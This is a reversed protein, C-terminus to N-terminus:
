HGDDAERLAERAVAQAENSLDCGKAIEELTARTWSITLLLREIECYPCEGGETRSHEDEREQLRLIEDSLRVNADTLKLNHAQLEELMEEQEEICEDADSVRKQLREIEDAAEEGIHPRQAAGMARLREILNSM